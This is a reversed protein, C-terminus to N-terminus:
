RSITLGGNSNKNFLSPLDEDSTNLLVDLWRHFNQGGAENRGFMVHSRVGTRLARQQKLGTAYDEDRVVYELFLFQEHAAKAREEDPPDQMLYNQM